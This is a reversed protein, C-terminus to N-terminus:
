KQRVASSVQVFSRSHVASLAQVRWSAPPQAQMGQAWIGQPSALATRWGVCPDFPPDTLVEVICAPLSIDLQRPPPVALGLDRADLVAWM